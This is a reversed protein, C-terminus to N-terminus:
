TGSRDPSVTIREQASANEQAKSLVLDSKLSLGDIMGFVWNPDRVGAHFRCYKGGNGSHHASRRLPLRGDARSSAKECHRVACQGCAVAGRRTAFFIFLPFRL